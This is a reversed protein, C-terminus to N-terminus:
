RVLPQEELAQPDTALDFNSLTLPPRANAPAQVRLAFSQTILDGPVPRSLFFGQGRDVGLQRLQDLQAQTEIGEATVAIGLEHALATVARVIAQSAADGELGLVFGRDIKITDVVLRRLYSLASYGTGFDDIAIRVGLERLANIQISTAAYDVVGRENFELELRDPAMGTAALAAVIERVIAPRFQRASLNVGMVLPTTEPCLQRWVEAQRCAEALVWRGLSWILGSDEALQIFSAPELWGQDPDEWRVLAEFGIVAGTVLNVTPQYVLRLEGSDIARRLEHERKRKAVVAVAMP